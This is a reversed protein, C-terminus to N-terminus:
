RVSALRPRAPREFGGHVEFLLQAETALELPGVYGTVAM